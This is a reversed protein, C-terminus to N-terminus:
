WHWSISFAGLVANKDQTKYTRGHVIIGAYYEVGEHLVCAGLRAEPQWPMRSCTRDFDHFLGGDIPLDRKVYSLSGELVLFYSTAERRYSPKTLTNLAFVAPNNGTLSSSDPLNRGFRFSVGTSGSLNFSGLSERLYVMGDSEWGSIPCREAWRLRWDQRSTFQFTVETPIQDSWGDWTDIHMTNHLSNQMHEAMSPKGTIGVQLESACGFNEGRLLYAAGLALYGCYPHQGDLDHRAHQEPTYINQMLSLGWANGSPLLHAYDLRTGHTYNRDQNSVSDNEFLARLHHVPTPVYGPSGPKEIGNCYGVVGAGLAYVVYPLASM